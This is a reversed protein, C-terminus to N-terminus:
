IDIVERFNLERALDLLKEKEEREPARLRDVYEDRVGFSRYSILKIAVESVHEGLVNAVERLTHENDQSDLLVMRVEELKGCEALYRLNDKVIANDRGTLRLHDDREWAKIDLMVGDSVELLANLDGTSFDLGGNSDILATLGRAKAGEFLPILERAQLTSEGGSVSIGEIFPRAKDVEKLIAEAEMERVKPSAGHPCVSLCTDCDVCTAPDWLVKGDEKKLAGAPCAPVCVGCDICRHITEPNHCYMCNFNCTQLFIAFRNGPGDVVSMPILKNVYLM